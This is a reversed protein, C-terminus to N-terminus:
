QCVVRQCASFQSPPGPLTRHPLWVHLSPPTAWRGDQAPSALSFAFSVHLAALPGSGPVWGWVRVWLFVAFAGGAGEPPLRARM